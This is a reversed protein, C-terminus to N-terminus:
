ALQAEINRIFRSSERAVTLGDPLFEFAEVSIWRQYSLDRLTQMVTKFDFNGLGPRRGDRENFHVHRIYRYDARILRDLPLTEAATNHTDLMSSVAPSDVARVVDLAQELTNIVDCLHPALPEVLITVKRAEAASASEALGEKVRLIADPVTAGGVTRREASGLFVMTGNDGLAACLDIMRRFYDWTKKRLAPDSTTVSMGKPASLVSHIGIYSVGESAMIGRLEALRASPLAAPDASLTYPAIEIGTFGTERVLRCMEPFLKDQFTKNCIGLRFGGPAAGARLAALLAVFERRTIM